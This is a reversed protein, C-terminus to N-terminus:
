LTALWNRLLQVGAAGSKEPHFQTAKLPGNEVASVFRDGYETWTLLPPRVAATGADALDLSHAAYSHVFYFRQDGLGEFLVSESPAEVTNWGMHPLIPASLATVRGPWQACGPSVLGHEEGSEFMIQMGVCIGLVPRGGSLRREIIRQGGVARLGRMCTEFAGVGPVVLGDAAAAAEASATVSVEAGAAELARQASRLNGSGYDLVVVSTM